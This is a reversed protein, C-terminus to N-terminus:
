GVQNVTMIISPIAPRDPSAQEGQYFLNTHDNDFSWMLQATDCGSDGCSVEVFFNWAAVVKLGNSVLTIDTATDPVNQGNQRLWITVVDASGGQTRYLQASFAINYVGPNTFTIYSSRGGVDGPGSEVSIGSTAGTQGFYMPHATDMAQSVAGDSGQTEDDWFSGYDGLGSAGPEGPPGPPGSPGPEGQPGQDGITCVGPEGSPGPPGSPGPEGTPGPSGTAGTEGQEGELSDIFAQQDGTNGLLLWIDYASLGDLGATGADGDEGASGTIGDSGEAGRLAEIFDEPTGTNGQDLWIQYASKGAPGLPGAIGQYGDPGPEGVLANLFDEETGTNGQDLWVQYASDGKIAEVIREPLCPPDNATGSFSPTDCGRLILAVLALILALAATTWLLRHRRESGTEPESQGGTAESGDISGQQNTM